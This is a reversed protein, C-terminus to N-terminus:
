LNYKNAFLLLKIEELEKKTLLRYEKNVYSYSFVIKVHTDATWKKLIKDYRAFYEIGIKGDKNMTIEAVYIFDDVKRYKAIIFDGVNLSEAFNKNEFTKIYKM